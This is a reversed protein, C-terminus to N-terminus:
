PHRRQGSWQCIQLMNIEKLATASQLLGRSSVPDVQKIKAFSPIYHPASQPVDAREACIHGYPVPKRGPYWLGFLPLRFAEGVKCDTQAAFWRDPVRHRRRYPLSYRNAVRGPPIGAFPVSGHRPLHFLCIYLEITHWQCISHATSSYLYM